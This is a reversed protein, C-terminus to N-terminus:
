SARRHQDLFVVNSPAANRQIMITLRIALAELEQRHEKRALALKRRRAIRLMEGEFQVLAMLDANSRTFLTM